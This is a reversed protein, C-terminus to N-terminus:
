SGSYPPTPPQQQGFYPQQPDQPSPPQQQVPQTPQNPSVYPQQPPQGYAPQQGYNPQQGYAQQQQPPQPQGYPPQAGPAGYPPQAQQQGYPAPGQQQSPTHHVTFMASIRDFSGGSQTFGRYSQVGATIVIILAAFYGWSPGGAGGLSPYTLGQIAFLLLAFASLGLGIASRNKPSALFPANVTVNFAPLGLVVGYALLLLMPFWDEFGSPYSWADFGASYTGGFAGGYSYSYWPFFSVVFLLVGALALVQETRGLRRLDM